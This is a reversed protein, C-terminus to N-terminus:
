EIRAIADLVPVLFAGLDGYRNVYGSAAIGTAPHILVFGQFGATGGLHGVLELDGARFHQLGLGYGDQAEEPIPADVFDSMLEFTAPEDFLRGAVLAGLLKVLDAPTTVLADGGAPGAMSPDVETIDIIRDEVPHYGRSCGICRPNGEEPLESRELEARELVRKRVTARWPEGTTRELITGLLIYNTNSYAWGAGPAFLPPRELARDFFEDFTWVHTPDAVVEADFEPTAFEPIGSTHRLLMRVTISHADPFRSALAAPVLDTLTEDLSLERKEVLQLVATAVAIKLISGARFREAPTLAQHTELSAVGSSGSWTRYKPHAVTLSVGPAVGAAVVDDLTRELDDHSAEPLPRKKSDGPDSTSDNSSCAQLLLFGLAFRTTRIM